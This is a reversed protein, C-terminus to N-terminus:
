KKNSGPKHYGSYDKKTNSIMNHYDTIRSNLNHGTKHHANEIAQQKNFAQNNPYNGKM